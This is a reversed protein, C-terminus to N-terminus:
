NVALSPPFNAYMALKDGQRRLVSEWLTDPNPSFVDEPLADVVFWAGLEIEGELQGEAWGAYGVFVRLAQVAPAVLLPDRGLDLMGVPGFLPEWGTPHRDPCARALCVASDVSVPGGKFVVAPASACRDWGALPGGVEAATPRNLVVGIAGEGGHELVLVVTRDFNPDGLVPSAVLLRNSLPVTM